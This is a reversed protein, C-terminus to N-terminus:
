LIFLKLMLGMVIASMEINDPNNGFTLILKSQNEASGDEGLKVARLTGSLSIQNDPPLWDANGAYGWVSAAGPFSSGDVKQLQFFM